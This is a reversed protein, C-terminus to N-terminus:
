GTDEDSGPPLLRARSRPALETIRSRLRERADSVTVKYEQAAGDAGTHEIRQPAKGETRDMLWEAARLNGACAQKVMVAAIREKNTIAQGNYAQELEARLHDALSAGKKPRGRRNGYTNGKQFPM